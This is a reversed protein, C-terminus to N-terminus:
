EQYKSWYKNVITVHIYIQNQQIHLDLGQIVQISTESFLNKMYMYSM